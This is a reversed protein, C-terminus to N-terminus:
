TSGPVVERIIHIYMYIIYYLQLFVFFFPKLMGKEQRQSNSQPLHLLSAVNKVHYDWLLDPLRWTPALCTDACTNTNCLEYMPM